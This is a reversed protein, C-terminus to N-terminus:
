DGKENATLLASFVFGLATGIFIGIIFGLM